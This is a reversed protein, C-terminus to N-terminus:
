DLFRSARFTHLLTAAASGTNTYAFDEETLGVRMITIEEKFTSACQGKGRRNRVLSDPAPKIM